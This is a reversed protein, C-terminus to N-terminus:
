AERPAAGWGVGAGHRGRAQSGEPEAESTWHWPVSSMGPGGAGDSLGNAGAAPSMQGSQDGDARLVPSLAQAGRDGRCQVIMSHNRKWKSAGPVGGQRNNIVM